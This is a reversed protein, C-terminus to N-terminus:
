MVLIDHDVLLTVTKPGVTATYMDYGGFATPAGWNGADAFSVTDSANGDVTLTNGNDTVDLVDQASITLTNSGTDSLLDVTEINSVAPGAVYLNIDHGNAARLTDSGNGGDVRSDDADWILVDDGAGGKLDDAESGGDLTDNGNYVVQL